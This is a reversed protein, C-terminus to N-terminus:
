ILIHKKTFCMKRMYLLTYCGAEEDLFPIFNLFEPIRINLYKGMYSFYDSIMIHNM